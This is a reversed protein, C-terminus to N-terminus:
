RKANTITVSLKYCTGCFSRIVQVGIVQLNAATEIYDSM